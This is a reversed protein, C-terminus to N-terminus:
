AKAGERVMHEEIDSREGMTLPKGAIVEGAATHHLAPFDTQLYVKLTEDTSHRISKVAIKGTTHPAFLCSGRASIVLSSNWAQLLPCV